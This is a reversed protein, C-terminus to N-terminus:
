NFLQELTQPVAATSDFRYHYTLADACVINKEVIHRLDERGCLLREQCLKHNDAMLEVGYTTSLAQELTSGTEIKRIIIEGLFQGDGCSNDLVTKTPDAFVEIPINALMEQVLATPTFVEGTAKIRLADRAAGSMYSHNRIHNIIDNLTPMTTLFVDDLRPM